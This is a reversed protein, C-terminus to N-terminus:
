TVAFHAFLYFVYIYYIYIYSADQIKYFSSTNHIFTDAHQFEHFHLRGNSHLTRLTDEAHVRPLTTDYTMHHIIDHATSYYESVLNMFEYIMFWIRQQVNKYRLTFEFFTRSDITTVKWQLGQHRIRATKLGLGAWHWICPCFPPSLSLALCRQFVSRASILKFLAIYMKRKLHREIPLWFVFLLSLCYVFRACLGKSPQLICRSVKASAIQQQGVCQKISRHKTKM